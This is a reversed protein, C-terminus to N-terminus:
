YGARRFAELYYPDTDSQQRYWRVYGRDMDKIPTGKYKGFGMVTPIRATQSLQYLDEWTTVDHGQSIADDVLSSLIIRCMVVDALASHAQKQMERIDNLGGYKHAYYYLVSGQKHSDLEPLLFRALALTCIRKVGPLGGLMEADFDINHGVAYDTDFQMFDPIAMESQECDVLDDPLIHHTAMAGFKISTSPRYRKNFYGSDGPLVNHTAGILHVPADHVAVWALEIIQATKVDSDTTETDIIKVNPKM